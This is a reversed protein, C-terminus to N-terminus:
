YITLLNINTIYCAPFYKIMNSSYEINNNNYKVALMEAIEVPKRARSKTGPTVRIQAHGFMIKM